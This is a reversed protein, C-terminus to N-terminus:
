RASGPAVDRWMKLMYPRSRVYGTDLRASQAFAAAASTSDNMLYDTAALEAWVAASTPLLRSATELHQRADAFRGESRFLYGAYAQIDGDTPELQLARGIEEEAASPGHAHELVWAYEYAAQGSNPELRAVIRYTHEAHPLDNLRLYAWALDHQADGYTSDLAVATLLHPVAEAFRGQQNLVWGIVNHTWTDTTDLREAALLPPLAEDYRKLQVLCEGLVFQAHADQPHRAAQRQADALLASADRETTPVSLAAERALPAACPVFEYWAAHLFGGRLSVCAPDGVAAGNYTGVPVPIDNAYTIPGWPAVRLDFETYRSHRVERKQVVWTRFYSPSSGDPMTDAANVLAVSYAIGLVALMVVGGWRAPSTWAIGVLAGFYALFVAGYWILLPTPDVLHSADSGFMVPVLAGFGPLLILLGLDARPDVKAKFTNFLLPFQHLLFIGLPPFALLVAMGTAYIPHYPVAAAVCAVGAVTSLGIMWKRATGLLREHTHRGPGAESDIMQEIRAANREDVDPVGKLWGELDDNGTFAGSVTLAGRDNRLFIRTSTGYNNRIRQLGDVDDRRVTRTRLASRLELRDGDLILRSRLASSALILGPIALLCAITIGVPDVGLRLIPVGGGVYVAALVLYM